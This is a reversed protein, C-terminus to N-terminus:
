PKHLILMVKSGNHLTTAILRQKDSDKVHLKKRLNDASCDFNRVAVNIAPYERSLTKLQRSAFDVVREIVWPEGPFGETPTPSYYLHTNPHLKYLGFRQSLLKYPAAKMLTAGPEYLYGGAKPTGYKPTAQAEESETFSFRHTPTWMHIRPEITDNGFRTDALLEKCETDSGTVYLDTIHRLERLTMTIDLMPSAKVILRGSRAAIAPLLETVDPCCDALRYVREGRSGRRAPDIFIVDFNESCSKLFDRCDANVVTINGLGLMEANYRAFDAVTTDWEVATVTAARRAIHFTDIGLGCTLDAVHSGTDVLSAHFGAIIDGTCQEESLRSPFMFGRHRLTMPLKKRAKHRCEIQILALDIWPLRSGYKLRLMVPDDSAHAEVWDLMEKNEDM